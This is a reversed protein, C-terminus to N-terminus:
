LNPFLSTNSFRIKCEPPYSKQRGRTKAQVELRHNDEMTRLVEKVQGAFFPTRDSSIYNLLEAVSVWTRNGFRSILTDRLEAVPSRVIDILTLQEGHDGVFRYDGHPMAKWIAEKMKDSGQLHRTAFFISYVHDQGACLDFHLVHKAGVEKLRQKYLAFLFTRQEDGELDLAAQWETTGFFATLACDFGHTGLFRRIFRWMFTSFVECKPNKFIRKIIEMNSGKIGFPDIMVFAPAMLSNTEQLGDLQRSLFSSFKDEMVYAKARKSHLQPRWDGVIGSLRRYRTENKEIFLFVVDSPIRSKHEVLTRMAIVPSGDEGGQYIGPGAFGDVILVKPSYQGVIPLWRELYHRLVLHKGITHAKREWTTTTPAM